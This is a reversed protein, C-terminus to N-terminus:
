IKGARKFRFKQLLERIKRKSDRGLGKGTSEGAVWPTKSIALLTKKNAKLLYPAFVAAFIKAKSLINKKRFDKNKILVFCSFKVTEVDEKPVVKILNDYQDCVAEFDEEKFRKDFELKTKMERLTM